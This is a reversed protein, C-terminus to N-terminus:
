KLIREDYLDNLKKEFQIQEEKWQRERQRAREKDSEVKEYIGYVAGVVAGIAAGWPGAASGTQAFSLTKNIISVAEKVSEGM